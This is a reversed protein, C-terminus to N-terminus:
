GPGPARIAGRGCGAGELSIVAGLQLDRSSSGVRVGYCGGNVAWGSGTAWHSFDRDTLLIQGTKSHRARIRLRDFGKLEKPPEALSPGSPLRLYLEPVATGTRAGLNTVEFSVRAVAPRNRRLPEVKLRSYRFRAYSLGFGFPYAPGLRHADYWRYGVLVGEKYFVENDVGPYAEPDGATPTDAEGRQHEEGALEGGHQLGAEM